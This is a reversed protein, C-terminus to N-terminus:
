TLDHFHNKKSIFHAWVISKTHYYKKDPNIHSRKKLMKRLQIFFSYHAKIIAFLHKPRAQFLFRIGAFADLILRTLIIPFVSGGPLNKALSFLSNRFNLFTKGPSTNKLTAGGVHYVTSEGTYCIKFGSHRARWCLDIEEQHAFYDEDFGGLQHFVKNRIFFCAGSAWFIEAPDNYQGNDKEIVNFIRGRCFPYGYKDIYGGAAGAYEFYKKNNYDLLKPQIIATNNESRFIEMVPSLWHPSVEVDSNLLCYIDAHVQKLADNYGKAFGKNTTHHIIKVQPYHRQIFDVSGDSSANDAVYIGANESYKIVSPLFQKLLQKGNWNLIVIAINLIIKNQYVTLM